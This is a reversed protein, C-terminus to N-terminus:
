FLEALLQALDEKLAPDKARDMVNTLQNQTKVNYEGLYKKLPDGIIKGFQSNDLFEPHTTEPSM